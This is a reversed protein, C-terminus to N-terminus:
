QEVEVSSILKILEEETEYENFYDNDEIFDSEIDSSNVIDNRISKKKTM